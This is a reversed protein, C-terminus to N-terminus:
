NRPNDYDIYNITLINGDLLWKALSPYIRKYAATSAGIFGDKTINQQSSDAVLLCGMTHEDTNGTHILIYEFGPVDQVHLIGKHWDGFKNAYRSHFGGTTRLKIDYTGEPIRTEASVKEERWEDELTYALFERGEPGVESLIGLTSDAGSSYRLVELQREDEGVIDIDAGVSFFNM